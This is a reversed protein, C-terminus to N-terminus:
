EATTTRSCGQQSELEKIRRVRWFVRGERNKTHAECVFRFLANVMTDPFQAKEANFSASWAAYGTTKRGPLRERLGFRGRFLYSSQPDNQSPDMEDLLAFAALCADSHEGGTCQPPQNEQDKQNASDSSIRDICNLASAFM